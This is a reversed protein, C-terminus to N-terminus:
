SYSDGVLIQVGGNWFKQIKFFNTSCPILSLSKTHQILVRGSLLVNIIKIPFKKRSTLTSLVIPLLIFDLSPFSEGREHNMGGDLGLLKRGPHGNSGEEGNSGQTGM